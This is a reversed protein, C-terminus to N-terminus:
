ELKILNVVMNDISTKVSHILLDKQFKFNGQELVLFFLM